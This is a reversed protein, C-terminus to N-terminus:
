LQRGVVQFSDIDWGDYTISYDSKLRFRIRFVSAGQLVDKLSLSLTTWDSSGTLKKLEIWTQGQDKSLEVYGYDYASELQYRNKVDLMLDSDTFPFDVTEAAIDINNQYSGTASDTLVSLGNKNALSWTGGLQFWNTNSVADETLLVAVPKLTFGASDSAASLNGVNDVARVALFASQNYDLGTIRATVTGDQRVVESVAINAAAEWDNDDLIPEAALRVLYRSAQGDDGDDGSEKWSVRLDKVGTELITIDQVAAPALSDNELASAASIRGFKVANQIQPVFQTAGIIRNKLDQAKLSPYEAKLLAVLGTVHPTAMSTGSKTGYGNNPITSWIDSGPAAVHVSKVGFNSFYSLADRRDTSAVAIINPVDYSSPYHAVADNNSSNNGAAAIFLINKENARQIAALMAESYAGGGWSNNSAVVGLNTAYDIGKILVDASSEGAGSFVKIPVMSVSWNVGVVGRGNNGRGGITGAVHTGHSNDDMPDNDNNFFDWGHWDDVYGNGDDDIGNTSRDQGNFDQGTEGPNKWINDALDLHNYDTGSDIIGVLVSASGTSFDWAKTMGIDAGVVGGSAGDNRLGYLRNFDPDNPVREDLRYILNAEVAQVRRDAALDQAVAELDVAEGQPFRVVMSRENLIEVKASTHSRLLADVQLSEGSRVTLILENEKHPHELKLKQPVKACGLIAIMVWLPRLARTSRSKM